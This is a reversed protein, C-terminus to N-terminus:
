RGTSQLTTGPALVVVDLHRHLSSLHLPQLLIHLFLLLRHLAHLHALSLLIPQLLHLSTTLQHFQLHQLEGRIQHMTVLLLILLIPTLLHDLLDPLITSHM